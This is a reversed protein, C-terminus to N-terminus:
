TYSGFILAVPRADRLAALDIVKGDMATLKLEYPAKRAEVFNLEYRAM